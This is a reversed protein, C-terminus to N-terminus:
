EITLRSPLTRLEPLRKKKKDILTLDPQRASILIDTQIEFDWLLKHTENESVSVANRMYSKKTHYFKFKKCLEWNIVKSMWNNRTKYEKEDLKSCENIVHIIPEERDGCLRCRCTQQM